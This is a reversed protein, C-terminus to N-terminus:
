HDRGIWGMKRSIRDAYDKVLPALGEIEERSMRSAPVTLSIAAIVEGNHDRIPCAVCRIEPEHETDDIAYGQQRVLALHRKLESPSTITKETYRRLGKKKIIQELREEPLYALLVKGVGTCHLPGRKGIASYMRVARQTEKKDIYVMEDEDLVALHVTENLRRSLEELEPRAQSRLEIKSLVQHTLEFLRLGAKYLKTDPDQTALQYSILSQLLRHVTSKHLGTKASLEGLSMGSDAGCLTILVELAREVSKVGRSQGTNQFRM